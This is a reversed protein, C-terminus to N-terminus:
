GSDIGPMKAQHELGIRFPFGQAITRDIPTQSEVLGRLLTEGAFWRFVVGKKQFIWGMVQEFKLVIDIPRRDKPFRLRRANAIASPQRDHELSINTRYRPRM